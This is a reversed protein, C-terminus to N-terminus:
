RLLQMSFQGGIASNIQETNLFAPGATAGPWGCTLTYSSQNASSVLVIRTLSFMASSNGSEREDYSVNSVRFSGPALVGAAGTQPVLKCYPLNKSAADATVQRQGQFLLESRGTPFTLPTLLTFTSGTEVQQPAAPPLPPPPTHQCAAMVVTVFVAARLEMERISM